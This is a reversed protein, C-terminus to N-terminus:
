AAVENPSEQDGCDRTIGLLRPEDVRLTPNVQQNWGEMYPKYLIKKQVYKRILWLGHRSVRQYRRIFGGLAKRAASAWLTLPIRILEDGDSVDRRALLGRGSSENTIEDKTDTSIAMPHPAEGWTSQESLYVNGEEELWRVLNANATLKPDNESSEKMLGKLKMDKEFAGIEPGTSEKLAKAWSDNSADGSAMGLSSCRQQQNLKLSPTQFTFGQSVHVATQALLVQL